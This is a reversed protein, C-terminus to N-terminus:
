EAGCFVFAFAAAKLRKVERMEGRAKEAGGFQAHSRDGAERGRGGGGGGETGALFPM